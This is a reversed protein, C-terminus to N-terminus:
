AVHAGDAAVDAEVRAAEPVVLREGPAFAAAEADLFIAVQAVDSGAPRFAPRCKGAVRRGGQQAQVGFDFDGTCASGAANREVVEVGAETVSVTPQLRM